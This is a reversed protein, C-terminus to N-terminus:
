GGARNRPVAVAPRRLDVLVALVLGGLPFGLTWLGFRLEGWSGLVAGGLFAGWLAVYVVAARASAGRSELGLHDRLYSPEGDRGPRALANVANQALRTTMGSMYTTRITRGGWKTVTAAQPGMACGALALLVYYGGIGHGPITGNRLLRSGYVMFAAVLAAELALAAVTPSRWRRRTALEVLATVLAVACLFVGVIAVLPLAGPLDGRGLRQGLLNTDGTVHAVFIGHLVIYGAADVFGAVSALLIALGAQRRTEAM